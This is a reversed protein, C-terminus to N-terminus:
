TRFENTSTSSYVASNGLPLKKWMRDVLIMLFAAVYLTGIFVPWDLNPIFEVVTNSAAHAIGVVLISAKSRNYLWGYIISVPLLNVYRDIWYNLSVVSEGEAYWLFAHWPAWFLTVILATVLPSVGAQLRPRAFGTWGAEEGTANYFFFQYLFKIIVLGLLPYSSAAHGINFTAYRGFFSSIGISLSALCPFFVLAILSWGIAGGPNVLKVLSSRVTPVRSFAGSIVYAVPPTLFLLGFVIYVVSVPVNNIYFNFANFVVTGVLLVIIFAIWRAKKSGSRPERNGAATVLIGAFAPGCTAISALIALQYMDHQLVAIYSFGLGWTIVFTIVFFAVIPKKRIWEIIFKVKDAKCVKAAQRSQALRRRSSNEYTKVRASNKCFEALSEADASLGLTQKLL